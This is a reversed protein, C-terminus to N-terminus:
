IMSDFSSISRSKYLKKSISTLDFGGKSFSTTSSVGDFVNFFTLIHLSM